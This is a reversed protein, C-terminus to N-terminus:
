TKNANKRNRKFANVGFFIAAAGFVVPGCIRLVSFARMKNVDQELETLTDNTVSNYKEFTIKGEYYMSETTNLFLGHASASLNANRFQESCLKYSAFGLAICLVCIIPSWKLVKSNNFSSTTVSRRSTTVSQPSETPELQVLEKNTERPKKTPIAAAILAIGGILLISGFGLKTIESLVHVNNATAAGTNQIGTYADGGYTETPEYAGIEFTFCAIALAISVVGAAGFLISRLKAM